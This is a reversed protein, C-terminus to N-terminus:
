TLLLDTNDFVIFCDTTSPRVTRNGKNDVERAKKDKLAFRMSLSVKMMNLCLAQQHYILISLTLIFFCNFFCHLFMISVAKFIHLCNFGVYYSCSAWWGNFYVYRCNILSVITPFRHKCGRCSIKSLFILVINLLWLLM